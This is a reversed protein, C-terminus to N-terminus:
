PEGEAPQVLRALKLLQSGIKIQPRTTAALNIEFRVKNQELYFNVMVGQAAFGATDGVTLVHSDKLSNLLRPLRAAESAEIFLVHCEQFNARSTIQVVDWVAKGVPKGQLVGAAAGFPGQGLICLRLIASPNGMNPWQVLKAINHVFAAKVEYEDLPAAQVRACFM